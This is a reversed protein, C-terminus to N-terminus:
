FRLTKNFDMIASFEDKTFVPLGQSSRKELIKDITIKETISQRCIELYLLHIQSERWAKIAQIKKLFSEKELLEIKEKIKNLAKEPELSFSRLDALTLAKIEELPGVLEVRTRRGFFGPKKIDEVRPKDEKTEPRRIQPSPFQSSQSQQPLQSTQSIIPPVATKEKLKERFSELISSSPIEVASREGPLVTKREAPKDENKSNQVLSPPPPQLEPLAEKRDNRTGGEAPRLLGGSNIDGQVQNLTEPSITQSASDLEAHRISIVEDSKPSRAIVEEAPMRLVEKLRENTSIERIPIKEAKPSITKILNFIEEIQSVAFGLGGNEKAKILADKIEIFDRINKLHSILINKLRNKEEENLNFKLGRIIREAKLAVDEPMMTIQSPETSVSLKEEAEKKAKNILSSIDPLEEDTIEKKPPVSVKALDEKEYEKPLDVLPEKVLESIKTPITPPLPSIKEPELHTAKLAFSPSVPIKGSVAKIMPEKSGTIPLEVVQGDKIAKYKGDDDQFVLTEEFGEITLSSRKLYEYLQIVKKLKEKETETLNRFNKNESFYQSQALSDVPETGLVRNYDKLWNAITPNVQSEENNIRIILKNQGILQDNALIVQRFAKKIEDRALIPFLSIGSKIRDLLNFDAMELAVALHNKLLDEQEKDSLTGFAVFKLQNIIKFYRQYYESEPTIEPLIKELAKALLYSEKIDTHFVFDAVEREIESFTATDQINDKTLQNLDVM